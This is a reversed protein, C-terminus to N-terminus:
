NISLNYRKEVFHFVSPIDKKAKYIETALIQLNRQHINRTEDKKLLDEFSLSTKNRCVLRLVIEHLRNIKNNLTRSHFM